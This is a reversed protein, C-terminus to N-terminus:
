AAGAKPEAGLFIRRVEPDAALAAATGTMANRGDVLITARHALALAELANQEVIAVAVGEANIAAITAFLDEAAVPSLGASPEDLLLLKPEVMLASAMALIQRQGGSLTRGAHRRKAALVPFRELTRGIKRAAGKPDLYGGMELNEIVSLSPFINAEQPVYAIGRASVERPRLGAIPAGDFLIEGRKPRLLGAVTKLLTSKGAGNPGIIAVIEGAAVDLAAGKLIEDAAGYGAVVERVSLLGM